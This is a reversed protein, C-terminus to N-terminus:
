LSTGQTGEADGSMSQYIMVGWKDELSSTLTSNNITISNAGEIVASEPGSASYVGNTGSIRRHFLDGTFECRQHISNGGEETITGSGRDTALAGSSKGATTIDVDKLTVIGGKTAMVGHAGGATADIIVNTLNFQSGTGRPSRETPAKVPQPSRATPCTSPPVPPQWFPPM